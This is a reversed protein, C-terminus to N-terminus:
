IETKPKIWSNQFQLGINECAKRTERSDLNEPILREGRSSRVTLLWDHLEGTSKFKEVIQWNLAIAMYIKARVSMQGVQEAAKSGRERASFFAAADAANSESAFQKIEKLAPSLVTKRYKKEVRPPNTAGEIVEFLGIIKGIVPLATAMDMEASTSDTEIGLCSEILKRSAQKVWAPVDANLGEIGSFIGTYAKERYKAGKARASIVERFIQNLDTTDFLKAMKPLRKRLEAEPIEPHKQM